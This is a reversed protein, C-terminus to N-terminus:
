SSTINTVDCMFPNWIQRGRVFYSTKVPTQRNVSPYERVEPGLDKRLPVGTRVPSYRRGPCTTGGELIPYGRTLVPTLGWWPYHHPLGGLCSLLHQQAAPPWPPPSEQWEICNRHLAFIIAIAIASHSHAKLALFLLLRCHIAPVHEGLSTLHCNKFTM